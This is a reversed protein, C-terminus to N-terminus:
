PLRASSLVKSGNFPMTLYGFPDHYFGCQNDADPAKDSINGNADDNAYSECKEAILYGFLHM